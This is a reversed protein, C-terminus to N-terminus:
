KGNRHVVRTAKKQGFNKLPKTVVYKLCRQYKVHSLALRFALKRAGL